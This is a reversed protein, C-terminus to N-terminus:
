LNNKRNRNRYSSLAAYLVLRGAATSSVYLIRFSIILATDICVADTLRHMRGTTHIAHHYLRGSGEPNILLRQCPRGHSRAVATASLKQCQHCHEDVTETRGTLGADTHVGRTQAIM